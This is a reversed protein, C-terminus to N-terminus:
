SKKLPKKVRAKSRAAKKTTARAPKATRSTTAKATKAGGKQSQAVLKALKEVDRSLQGLKKQVAALKQSHTAAPKATRKRAKPLIAELAKEILSEEAM